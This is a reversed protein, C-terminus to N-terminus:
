PRHLTPSASTGRADPFVETGLERVRSGAARGPAEVGFTGALTRLVSLPDYRRSSVVGSAALPSIVLAGTAPAPSGRLSPVIGGGDFLIVLLGDDQFAASSTILPIWQRLWTDARQLGGPPEGPCDLEAGAHCLDPVVWALAPALDADSLDAPLGALDVVASPCADDLEALYLFPVRFAAYADGPRPLRWPDPGAAPRRCPTGIGQAYAKWARASDSLEAPLSPTNADFRCDDGYDPCDAEAASGAPRGTLLTLGNALSGAGSPRYRRLLVGQAPLEGSLYPAPSGAGFAEEATHGTLAVIVVHKAPPGHPTREPEPSPEPEPEPEATPEPLPDPSASKAPPSPAPARAPRTPKSRAVTEPVDDPLDAAATASAPAPAPAAPRSVAIVYRGAAPASVAHPGAAFGLVTGVGLAALAVAVGVPARERPPRAHTQPDPTTPTLLARWDVIPARVRAGCELCHRQDAAAPASCLPCSSPIM